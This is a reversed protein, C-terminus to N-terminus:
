RFFKNIKLLLRTTALVIFACVVCQVIHILNKPM